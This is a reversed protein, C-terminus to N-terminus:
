KTKVSKIASWKSVHKKGSTWKYSRVRVYYTKKRALKKIKKSTATKKATVVKSTADTFKKNTSYQIEIGAIKKRNKSSPKKWKATFAAKAKAPKKISVSPLDVIVKSITRSVGCRTCRQTYYDLSNVTTRWNHGLAKTVTQAKSIQTKCYVDKYYKGGKTWYEINGAKTCTAAKAKYHRVKSSMISYDQSSLELEVSYYLSIADKDYEYRVSGGRVAFSYGNRVSGGNHGKLFLLDPYGVNYYDCNTLDAIYNMGDDMHLVNWMHGESKSSTVLDGTITYCEISDNSFTSLNCLFQFAKAYGECVVNTDPNRDFVNILQWPDGYDDALSAAMDYSTLDCIEQRYKDLKDFDSLRSNDSVIKKACNVADGAAKTREPNTKYLYFKQSVGDSDTYGKVEPSISNDRYDASVAFYVKATGGRYERLVGETKDCWYLEYPCDTLLTNLIKEFDSNRYEAVTMPIDFAVSNTKGDAIRTVGAKLGDFFKQEEASLRARRAALKANKKIAPPEPEEEAEALVSGDIDVGAKNEIYKKLLEDQDPIDVSPRYLEPAFEEETDSVQDEAEADNLIEVEADESAAAETELAEADDAIQTEVGDEETQIDETQMETNAAEPEKAPTEEAFAFVPMMSVAVMLSLLMSGIRRRLMRNHNDTKRM